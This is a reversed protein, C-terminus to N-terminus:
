RSLYEDLTGDKIAQSIEEMAQPDQHWIWQGDDSYGSGATPLTAFQINDAANRYSFAISAATTSDLEEDTILHESFTSVMEHLRVPNSLTSPSAAESIVGRIFSQQNRIRQLDGDPFSSRHRVFSLAEDSNMHQQGPQFTYGEGTTFPESYTSNVTVGDMADVLGTFGLMDVAAIHDIRVDFMQEVTAWTLWPGEGGGLALGANVKHWGYDYPLEVWLDRPISIVQISERDAPLHILMMTDSRSGGPVRPLDEDEGSGGEADSGLLLINMSGDDLPAPRDEEPPRVTDTGDASEPFHRVNGDYARALSFLYAGAGLLAVMVLTAFLGLVALGRRKRRPRDDDSDYLYVPGDGGPPSGPATHRPPAATM